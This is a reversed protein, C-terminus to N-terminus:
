LPFRRLMPTAKNILLRLEASGSTPRRFVRNKLGLPFFHFDTVKIQQAKLCCLGNESLTLSFPFYPRFAYMRSLEGWRIERMTAVAFLAPYSSIGSCMVSIVKKKKKLVVVRPTCQPKRNETEFM